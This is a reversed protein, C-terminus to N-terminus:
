SSSIFLKGYFDQSTGEGAFYLRGVNARFNDHHQRVFSPPWNSYSGRFLPDNHWRHFKFDLPEPITTNPYMTRLVDLTEAKVAADTMAEIKESYDGQREHNYNFSITKFSPFCSVTVTVFIIGSGPLFGEM